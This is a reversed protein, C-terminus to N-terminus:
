RQDLGGADGGSPAKPPVLTAGPTTMDEAPVAPAEDAESVRTSKDKRAEDPQEEDVNKTKALVSRLKKLREYEQPDTEALKKESWRYILMMGLVAAAGLALETKNNAFLGKGETEHEPSLPEVSPGPSDPIDSM